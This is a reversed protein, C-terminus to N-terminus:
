DDAPKNRKSFVEESRRTHLDKRKRSTQRFEDVALTTPSQKSFFWLEQTGFAKLLRAGWLWDVLANYPWLEKVLDTPTRLPQDAQQELERAADKDFPILYLESAIGAWTRIEEAPLINHIRLAAETLPVPEPEPPSKDKNMLGVGAKLTSPHVSAPRGEHLSLMGINPVQSTMM